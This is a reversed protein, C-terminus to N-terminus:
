VNSHQCCPLVTLESQMYVVPIDSSSLACCLIEYTESFPTKLWDNIHIAASPCTSFSWSIVEEHKRLLLTRYGNEDFMIGQLVKKRAYAEAMLQLRCALYAGLANWGLLVWGGPVKSRIKRQLLLGCNPFFFGEDSVAHM